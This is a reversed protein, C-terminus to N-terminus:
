DKGIGNPTGKTLHFTICWPTIFHDNVYHLEHTYTILYINNADAIEFSFPNYNTVIEGSPAGQNGTPYGMRFNKYYMVWSEFEGLNVSVFYGNGNDCIVTKASPLKEDIGESIYLGGDNRSVKYAHKYQKNYEPDFSKSIDQEDYEGSELYKINPFDDSMVKLPLEKSLLMVAISGLLHLFYLM